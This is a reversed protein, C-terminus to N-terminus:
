QFCRMVISRRYSCNHSAKWLQELVVPVGHRVAHHKAGQLGDIVEQGWTPPGDVGGEHLAEVEADALMHRCDAAPHARQPLTLIAQPLLESQIVDVVIKAERM